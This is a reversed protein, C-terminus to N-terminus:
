WLAVEAVVLSNRARHRARGQGVQASGERIAEALHTDSAQIAPVLGFVIASASAVAVTFLLVPLDIQFKMWFPLELPIMGVWLRNGIIALALGVCAGVLSLILSETLLSRVVRARSAGLALRVSIERKRTAARALMLNAVNACAILLVFAVAMSMIMMMLKIGRRWADAYGEVKASWDKLEVPNARRLNAYATAVEANAQKLTVGPKLRACITLNHDARKSADEPSIAAPIWSDATEPWNFGKPMVAVIERVRGNIKLTKGLVDPTGGFSRRWIRDSIMVVRWNQDYVNEDETFNRGIEPKVGLAPLLGATINAAAFKKPEEGITVLGNIQWFGGIVEYSKLQKRLDQFNLWCATDDKSEQLKNMERIAMVREFQPLPWPRLMVGYVMCFIMTNVGIGLALVAVVVAAFGPSRRLSRLAYKVDQILIEM